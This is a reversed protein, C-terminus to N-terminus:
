RIKTERYQHDTKKMNKYGAMVLVLEKEQIKILHISFIIIIMIIMMGIMIVMMMIMTAIMAAIM